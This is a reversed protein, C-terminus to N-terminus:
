RGAKQAMSEGGSVASTNVNCGRLVKCQLTFPGPHAIEVLGQGVDGRDAALDGGARRKAAITRRGDGGGATESEKRREKFEPPKVIRGTMGELKEGAPRRGRQHGGAHDPGLHLRPRLPMM